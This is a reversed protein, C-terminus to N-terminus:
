EVPYKGSLEGNSIYLTLNSMNNLEEEKWESILVLEVSAGSAINGVYTSLDDLLMTSMAHKYGNGDLSVRFKSSSSLMDVAASDTGNNSLTYKMVLLKNGDTADLAFFAGSGDPYSDKIEYGNSVITFNSLGLVENMPGSVVVEQETNDTVPTEQEDPKDPLEEQPIEPEEEKEETPKEAEEQKENELALLADEVKMLRNDAKESHQLLLGAAYEAVLDMEEDTLNPYSACGCLLAFCAICMIFYSIVKKM